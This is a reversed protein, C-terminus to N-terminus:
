KKFLNVKNFCFKNISSLTLIIINSTFMETNTSKNTKEFIYTKFCFSQLQKVIKKHDILFIVVFYKDVVSQSVLKRILHMFTINKNFDECTQFKFDLMLVLKLKTKEM